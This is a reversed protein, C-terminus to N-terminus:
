LTVNVGEEAPAFVAVIVTALEVEPLLEGVLLKVPVPVVVTVGIATVLAAVATVAYVAVNFAVFPVVKPAQGFVTCFPNTYESVDTFLLGNFKPVPTIVTGTVGIPAVSM